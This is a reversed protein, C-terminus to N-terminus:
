LVNETKNNNIFSNLLVSFWIFFTFFFNTFSSMIICFLLISLNIISSTNARSRFNLYTNMSLYGIFFNLFLVGFINFDIFPEYLYTALSTFGDYSTEYTILNLRDFFLFSFIPKFTYIGFTYHNNIYVQNILKDFNSFNKSSYLVVYTELTSVDFDINSYAKLYQNIKESDFSNLRLNGVSYFMSITLLFIFIIKSNKIKNFFAYSMFSSIFMLLINQRSLFNFSIFISIISLLILNTRTLLNQKYKAYFIAPYFAMFLVFYHGFPILNENSEEYIDLNKGVNLIPFYGIKIVELLFFSTGIIFFLIAFKKKLFIDFNPLKFRFKVKCFYAGFLFSIISTFFILETLWFYSKHQDDSIPLYSYGLLSIFLSYIFIPNYLTKFKKFSIFGILVSFNIIVISKLINFFQINFNDYRVFFFIDFIFLFILLFLSNYKLLIKNM